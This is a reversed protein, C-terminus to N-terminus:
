KLRGILLGSFRSAPKDEGTAGYFTGRDHFFETDLLAVPMRSVLEYEDRAPSYRYVTDLAEEAMGGFIYIQDGVRTAWAARVPRPLARIASWKGSRTDFRYADDLNRYPEGSKQTLGGFVYITEDVACAAQLLRPPGPVSELREWKGSEPDYSWNQGTVTTLDDNSTGGGMVYIKSDVTVASSYIVGSPAKGVPKWEQGELRYVDHHLTSADIGGILYLSGAAEAMVGYALPRPLPSWEEWRGHAPDYFSVRDTWIKRKEQWYTGGALLLGGKYWAAYYGGRPLPVDPGRSWDISDALGTTSVAPQRCAAYPVIMALLVLCLYKVAPLIEISSSKM